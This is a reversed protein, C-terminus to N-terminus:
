RKAAARSVSRRRTPAPREMTETNTCGLPLQEIAVGDGLARQACTYSRGFQTMVRGLDLAVAGYADTSKWAPPPFLGDRVLGMGSLDFASRFGRTFALGNKSISRKGM